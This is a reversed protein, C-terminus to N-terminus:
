VASPVSTPCSATSTRPLSSLRTSSVSAGSRHARQALLHLRHPVAERRERPKCRLVWNEFSSGGSSAFLLGFTPTGGKVRTLPLHSVMGIGVHKGVFHLRERVIPKATRVIFIERPATGRKAIRGSNRFRNTAEAVNEILQRKKDLQRQENMRRLNAAQRLVARDAETWAYSDTTYKPMLEIPNNAGGSYAQRINPDTFDAPMVDAYAIGGAFVLAVTVVPVRVFMSHNYRM